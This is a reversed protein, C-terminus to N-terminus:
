GELPFKEIIDSGVVRSLIVVADEGGLGGLDREQEAKSMDKLVKQM